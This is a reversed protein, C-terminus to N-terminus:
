PAMLLRPQGAMVIPKVALGSCSEPILTPSLTSKSISQSPLAPAIVFIAFDPEYRDAEGQVWVRCATGLDDRRRLMSAWNTASRAGSDKRPDTKPLNLRAVPMAISNALM